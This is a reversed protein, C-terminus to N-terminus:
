RPTLRLLEGSWAALAWVRGAGDLHLKTIAGDALPWVGPRMRGDVVDLIGAVARWQGDTGQTLGTVLLSREDPWAIARTPVIPRDFFRTDGVLGDFDLIRVAAREWSILAAVRGTAHHVAVGMIDQTPETPLMPLPVAAHRRGSTAEFWQLDRAQQDGAVLLEDDHREVHWTQQIEIARSGVRTLAGVEHRYLLAGFTSLDRRWQFVSVLTPAQGPAGMADLSVVWHQGLKATRTGPPLGAQPRPDIPASDVRRGDLDFRGIHWEGLDGYVGFFGSRQPDAALRMLCSV